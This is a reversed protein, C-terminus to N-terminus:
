WNESTLLRPYWSWLDTPTTLIMAWHTHGSDHVLPHPWFWPGTPTALIMFWHTHDSDRLPPHLWFWILPHPDSACILPHPWLWSGTPTTLIVFWHTHGSAYIPLHPWFWVLPHPRLCSGTCFPQFFRQTIGSGRLPWSGWKLSVKMRHRTVNTRFSLSVILHVDMWLYMRDTMTLACLTWM